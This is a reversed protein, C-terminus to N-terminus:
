KRAAKIKSAVIDGISVPVGPNAAAPAAEVDGVERQDLVSHLALFGLPGLKNPLGLLYLKSNDELSYHDEGVVVKEADPIKSLFDTMMGALEFMDAIDEEQMGMEILESEILKLEEGASLDDGLLKELKDLQQQDLGDVLREVDAILDAESIGDAAVAEEEAGPSSLKPFFAQATAIFYVALFLVIMISFRASRRSRGLYVGM